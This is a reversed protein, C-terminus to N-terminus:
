ASAALPLVGFEAALTDLASRAEDDVVLGDTLNARHRVAELEGPIQIPEGGPVRRSGRIATVYRDINDQFRGPEVFAEVSMAVALHGIGWSDLVSAGEALFTTPVEFALSADPLAAALIENIFAIAYGKHGGMPLVSGTMAAHPDQTSRGDQDIAWGEPIPDNKQAAVRITGRAVASCAMDLVIPDGSTPIGYAFPSNSIVPDRGGWPAMIAPTNSVFYGIMGQRVARLVHIALMGCHNSHRVAVFGVGHIRALAIAREVAHQGVIVGLGNDGDLVTTAGFARISELHPRPNIRGTLFGRAYVPLRYIGHTRIGRLDAEVLGDVLFEVDEGLLGAALAVRRVFSRVLDVPYARM